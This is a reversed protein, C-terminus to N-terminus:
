VAGHTISKIHAAGNRPCTPPPQAWSILKQAGHFLMSGNSSHLKPGMFNLDLAWGRGMKGLLPNARMLLMVYMCLEMPLKLAWIVNARSTAM